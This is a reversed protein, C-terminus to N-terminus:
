RKKDFKEMGELPQIFQMVEEWQGDLILQRTLTIFVFRLCSSKSNLFSRFAIPEIENLLSPSIWIKIQMKKGEEEWIHM